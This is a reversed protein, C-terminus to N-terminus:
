AQLAPLHTLVYRLLARIHNSCFALGAPQGNSGDGGIEEHGRSEGEGTKDGGGDAMRQDRELMRMVDGQSLWRFAAVEDDPKLVVQWAM